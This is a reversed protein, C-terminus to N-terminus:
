DRQPQMDSVDMDVSIIKMATPEILPHILYKIPRGSGNGNGNVHSLFDSNISLSSRFMEFPNWGLFFRAKISNVKDKIM